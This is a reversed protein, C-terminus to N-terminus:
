AVKKAKVDAQHLVFGPTQWVKGEVFVKFFREDLDRAKSHSEIIALAKELPVAPKYPRDNAALADFIDCVAMMRAQDPIYIEPTASPYGTGNLREHHTGAILPVNAFKATWPIKKLFAVTHVVHSEIELREEKTLSGKPISLSFIEDSELMPKLNGDCDKCNLHSVKTLKESRDHTLVTPRNLDLIVAWADEIKLGFDSIDKELRAFEMQTPVRSELVLRGLYDRLVEIEMARKFESLRHRIQLRQVPSLKEEKLLTAERVGIKGFDHLLAAYRIEAIQDSNYQIHKVGEDNSRSVKEALDVTLAAVRESHGRTTPDRAEIAHVSARVFGEFLNEIDRHLLASEIASSAIGAFSELLATDEDTFDPMKSLETEDSSPWAEGVSMKRNLLQIVGLMQGKSSKLPIVLSSRTRYRFKKDFAPDFKYDTESPIQYVDEVKILRGSKFCFTALGRDSIPISKKEFPFCISRNVAVEFVLFDSQAEKIYLSGADAILLDVAKEVILSLTAHLERPSMLEIAIEQLARLRAKLALENAVQSV